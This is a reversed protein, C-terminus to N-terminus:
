KRARRAAVLFCSRGKSGSRISTEVGEIQPQATAVAISRGGQVERAHVAVDVGGTGKQPKASGRLYALRARRACPRSAFLGVPPLSPPFVPFLYLSLYLCSLAPNKHTQCRAGRAPGNPPTKHSHLEFTASFNSTPGANRERSPERGRGERGARAYTCPVPGKLPLVGQSTAVVATFCTYALSSNM